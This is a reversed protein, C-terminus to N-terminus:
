LIFTLPLYKETATLNGSFQCLYQLLVQASCIWQAGTVQLALCLILTIYLLHTSIIACDATRSCHLLSHFFWLLLCTHFAMTGATDVQMHLHHKVIVALFQIPLLPLLKRTVCPLPFM